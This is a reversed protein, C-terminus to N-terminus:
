PTNLPFFRTLQNTYVRILLWETDEFDYISFHVKRGYIYYTSENGSPYRVLNSCINMKYRNWTELSEKEFNIM